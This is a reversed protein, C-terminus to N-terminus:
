TLQKFPFLLLGTVKPHPNGIKQGVKMGRDGWPGQLIASGLFWSRLSSDWALYCQCEAASNRVTSHWLLLPPCAPTLRNLEAVWSIKSTIKWISQGQIIFGVRHVRKLHSSHCFHFNLSPQLGTIYCKGLIYLAKSGVELLALVVFM